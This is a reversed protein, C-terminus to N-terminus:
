NFENLKKEIIIRILDIHSLMDYYEGRYSLPVSTHGHVEVRLEELDILGQKLELKSHGYTKLDIEHLREYWKYIKQRMTFTYLPIIGKFLPLLLTLFPIILIKLRDINSAIWFPFIQELWSDGHTLYRLAEPHIPSDLNNLNPFQFEKEFVGKQAHVKKTQKLLLRILEENVGKAAVLNATTTLLHKDEDPLNMYLDATGEYLTIRNLFSYKANYASARKFSLTKLDPNELLEKVTDSKASSVVFLADIEGQMLKQKGEKTSYNLLNSNSSDIGNDKLIRSSLDHTGSGKQGIATKKGILQILYDIPFGENKYFVWLPEYYLSALSLINNNQHGMIGSQVFAIDAKGEEILKINEVSGATNLITVQVNQKELLKKYLLATKYYNGTTGGSAITLHKNVTPETYSYTAYFAIFIISFIPLWLKFFSNNM